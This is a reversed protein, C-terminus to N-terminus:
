QQSLYVFQKIAIQTRRERLFTTRTPFLGVAPVKESPGQVFRKREIQCLLNGCCSSILLRISLKLCSTFTNTLLSKFYLNGGYNVVTM